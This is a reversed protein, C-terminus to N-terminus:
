LHMVLRTNDEGVPECFSHVPPNRPGSSVTVSSLIWCMRLSADLAMLEVTMGGCGSWSELLVSEM